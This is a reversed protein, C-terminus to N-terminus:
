ATRAGGFFVNRWPYVAVSQFLGARTFPDGALFADVEARDESDYVILSGVPTAGDDALVAGGALLKSAHRELHELHAPRHETRLAGAGPRDLAMIAFPM